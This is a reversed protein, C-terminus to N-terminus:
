RGGTGVVPLEEDKGEAVVRDQGAHEAGCLAHGTGPEEDAGTGAVVSRCGEAKVGTRAIHTNGEARGARHEGGGRCSDTIGAADDGPEGVGGAADKGQHAGEVGCADEVRDGAEQPDAVVLEARQCELGLRSGTARHQHRVEITLACGIQRIGGRRQGAERQGVRGPRVKGSSRDFAHEAAKGCPQVRDTRGADLGGADQQDAAGSGICSNLRDGALDEVKGDVDRGGALVDGVARRPLRRPHEGPLTRRPRDVDDAPRSRVM